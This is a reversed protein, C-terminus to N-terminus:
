MIWVIRDYAHFIDVWYIKIFLKGLTTSESYGKYNFNFIPGIIILTNQISLPKKLCSWSKDDKIALLINSEILCEKLNEM